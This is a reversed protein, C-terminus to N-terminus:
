VVLHWDLFREIRAYVDIQNARKLFGHGEGAYTKYEFVKGHRRLAEVLEASAQPPVVRDELGHLILLPKEIQEVQYIPSGQRYTDWNNRPHGLFIESYLRLDRNCQAWSTLLNADGFVDVGCAYLYSPDRALACVTMYGGYSPGYIAIRAPDVDDLAHLYRAAYLCDQCDGGGWDGYNAHEFEVGYGTSGRYNPALITYGKAALYQFYIDWEYVYQASPGGHPYVIGARNFRAAHDSQPPRYLFAPIELGDFSRYSVAEPMIMDNRALAPPNSFTLQEVRRSAVEMRYLDPPLLPDEYEVILSQGDPLWTPLMHVGKTARLTEIAGNQADVLVLEWAGGRNITAAIRKGDPSWAPDHLDFGIRTLQHLGTGDPRILWLEHYGTRQSCFVLWQGDPSWRPSQNIAKPAGALERIQSSAVDAVCIDLRNLDDFPRRVYAVLSGDTSVQADWADGPGMVLARPWSGDRDTILLQEHGNREVTILLHLSDPFWVPSSAGACFDSIKKPLGGGAAAVYVHDNMDFALWQGDPSWQPARDAYYRTATRETTVRQPWGGTGSVQYIDSLDDRDWIFAIQQGNPAPAHHRVRNVSTILSVSWGAPACLDPRTPAPWGIRDYTATLEISGSM